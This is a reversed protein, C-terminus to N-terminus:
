AHKSRLHSCVPARTFSAVHFNPMAPFKRTKKLACSLVLRKFLCSTCKSNVCCDGDCHVDLECSLGLCRARCLVDGKPTTCCKLGCNQGPTCEKASALFIFIHVVALLKLIMVANSISHDDYLRIFLYFLSRLISFCLASATLLLKLIYWEPLV